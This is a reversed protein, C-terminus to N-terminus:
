NATVGLAQLRKRFRESDPELHLARQYAAVAADMKHELSLANGLNYYAEAFDPKYFIAQQYEAIAEDTRHQKNLAFGLNNHTEPKAPAIELAQHYQTVADDLRGTRVLLNGYNHHVNEEDPKIALATLYQTEAEGFKEQQALLRGLNTHAMWCRPNKKLTDVWLTEASQYIYCQQRTVAALILLLLIAFVSKLQPGAQTVELLRAALGLALAIIGLCALYQYHDAVFTFRMPYVNVFGLAPALTGAFFLAAVLPGKGIRRRALWLGSLIGIVGAPFLWQWWLQPNIDWRPYVFTLGSPWILNAAYFCLARGAILCREFFTLSWEAGQAGVHHKEVWATVLGLCLGVLFFPLLPLVDLRRLREKKWWHVLLLAAPLSCAVTKCLLAAAFLSLAALYFCWRQKDEEMESELGSFRLYALAASLYFVASLVNKLETVWAVSEVQVPHLAFVAAALWAVPLKLRTLVQWLLIAGLIHLLVNILHFGLPNLGWLHYEIWFTTHVLPYYQPTATPDSWIQWLGHLSRLTQNNTVYDDDDWIYGASFVPWYAALTALVIFLGPWFWKPFVAAAEAVSKEPALPGASKASDFRGLKM